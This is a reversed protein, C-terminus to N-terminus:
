ASEVSTKQRPDPDPIWVFVGSESGFGQKHTVKNILQTLHSPFHKRFCLCVNFAACENNDFHIFIKVLSWLCITRVVAFYLSHLKQMM